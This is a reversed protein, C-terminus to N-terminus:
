PNNGTKKQESQFVNITALSGMYRRWSSCTHSVRRSSLMNIFREYESSHYLHKQAPSLAHFQLVQPIWTASTMMSSEAFLYYGHITAVPSIHPSHNLCRRRCLKSSNHVKGTDPAGPGTHPTTHHECRAKPYSNNSKKFNAAHSPPFHPQNHVTVVSATPHKGSDWKGTNTENWWRYRNPRVCSVVDNPLTKLLWDSFPIAAFPM